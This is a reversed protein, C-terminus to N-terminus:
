HAVKFETFFLNGHNASVVHIEFGVLQGVQGLSGVVAVQRDLLVKVVQKDRDIRLMGTPQVLEMEKSTGDPLKITHYYKRACLSSSGLPNLRTVDAACQVVWHIPYKRGQDGLLSINAALPERWWGLIGRTMDPAHAFYRFELYFENPLWMRRGIPHTGSGEALIWNRRDAGSRISINQGWEALDRQEPHSFNEYLM